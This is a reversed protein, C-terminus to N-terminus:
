FLRFILYFVLLSLIVLLYYHTRRLISKLGMSYEHEVSMIYAYLSFVGLLFGVAYINGTAIQHAAVVGCLFVVLHVSIM